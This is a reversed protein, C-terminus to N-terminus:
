TALDGHYLSRTMQWVDRSGEPAEFIKMAIALALDWREREEASSVYPPYCQAREPRAEQVEGNM